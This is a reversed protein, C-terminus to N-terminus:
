PERLHREARGRVVEPRYRRRNAEVKDSSVQLLDIDCVDALRLLYIFVDAIEGELRKKLDDGGLRARVEDDTLWQLEAVLEGAEASLAMALNKPTHFKEWDREQAFARVVTTLSEVSDSM